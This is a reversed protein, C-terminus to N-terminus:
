REKSPTKGRSFHTTACDLLCLWESLSWVVFLLPPPPLLFFFYLLLPFPLFCWGLRRFILEELRKLGGLFIDPTFITKWCSEEAEERSCARWALTGSFNECGNCVGKKELVFHVHFALHFFTTALIIESDIITPCPYKLPCLFHVNRWM